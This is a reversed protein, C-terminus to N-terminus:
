GEGPILSSRILTKRALSRDFIGSASFVKTRLHSSVSMGIMHTGSASATSFANIPIIWLEGATAPIRAVYAAETSPNARKRGASAGSAYPSASVHLRHEGAVEGVQRHLPAQGGVREGGVAPIQPAVQEM